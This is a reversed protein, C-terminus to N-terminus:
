KQVTARIQDLAEQLDSPLKSRFEVYEGSSPLTFGLCYSHLFQRKLFASKEGYVVDGIVPHGISSLHVRIQHTRGTKLTAEVLSYDGFCGIVQYSTHSPRGNPVVAMQKRDRRSRGIPAEITGQQTRLHGRVLVLYRKTVSHSKIQQTLASQSHLNKAVMMLGSTDKDLRHVIGPRASGDLATLEPCRALLANVLTHSPHGPAPHVTLGPPKDVVVLDDDEYVLTVPIDEPLLDCPPPPLIHFYVKDGTKLKSSARAPAGNVTACGRKILEQIYSRSFENCRQVLYKDLRVQEEEVTLYLERSSQM